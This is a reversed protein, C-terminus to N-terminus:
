LSIAKEDNCNKPFGPQLSLSARDNVDTKLGPLDNFVYFFVLGFDLSGSLGTLRVATESNEIDRKGQKEKASFDLLAFQENGLLERLEMFTRQAWPGKTPVRAPKFFPIWVAELTFNGMYLLGDFLLTPISREDKDITYFESFDEPNVIDIPNIEDARGWNLLM